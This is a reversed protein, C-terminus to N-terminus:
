RCRIPLSIKPVDTKNSGSVAMDAPLEDYGCIWSIPSDASGEVYVPRISLIKGQLRDSIKQGLQLHMAGDRVTMQQLYNGLVKEPDPLGVADNDEPFQGNLLYYGAILKKYPEVLDLTEVIKLQNKEGMMSPIAMLAMIAVVAMVIVIEILSFGAHSNSSTNVVAIRM